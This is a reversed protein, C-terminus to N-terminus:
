EHFIIESWKQIISSKNQLNGLISNIYDLEFHIESLSGSEIDIFASTVLNRPLNRISQIVRESNVSAKFEYQVFRILENVALHIELFDVKKLANGITDKYVINLSTVVIWRVYKEYLVLNVDQKFDISSNLLEKGNKIMLLSSCKNNLEASLTLNKSEVTIKNKNVISQVGSVTGFSFFDSSNQFKQKLQLGNQLFLIEKKCESLWEIETSDLNYSKTTVIIIDTDDRISNDVLILHSNKKGNLTLNFRKRVQKINNRRDLGRVQYGAYMFECSLYLGIGGLGM